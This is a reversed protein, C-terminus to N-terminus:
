FFTKHLYLLAWLLTKSQASLVKPGARTLELLSALYHIYVYGGNLKIVSLLFHNYIPIKPNKKKELCLDYNQSNKKSWGLLRYPGIGYFKKLYGLFFLIILSFIQLQAPDRAGWRRGRRDAGQQDHILTQDLLWSLHLLTRWRKIPGDPHLGIADLTGKDM